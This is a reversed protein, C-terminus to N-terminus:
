AIYSQIAKVAEDSIQTFRFSFGRQDELVRVIVGEAVFPKLGTDQPPTVNLRISTGVTGPVEDTLVQMGGVSIDRCIGTVIHSQNTIYTQAVLPKRPAARKDAPKAPAAAAKPGPPPGKDKLEAVDAFPKWETFKEQWVFASEVVQGSVILRKIENTGYPGTQTDNQFLFWKTDDEVKKPPPPPAAIVPKPKPPEAQLVKFVPHDALRIWNGDKERYIFDIWTVENAQLKKYVEEAKFPGKFNEGEAIFWEAQDNPFQITNTNEM